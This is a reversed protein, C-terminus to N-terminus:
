NYKGEDDFEIISTGIVSYEPNKTIEEYLVSIRQPLSIDDTDMRVLYETTAADIARNLSYVLGFNGGNKVIRIREDPYNKIYEELHQNKSDDVIVFEFDSFTQNLISEVALNFHEIPTDYEAM